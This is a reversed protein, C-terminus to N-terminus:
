RSKQVLLVLPLARDPALLLTKSIHACHSLATTVLWGQNREWGDMGVHVGVRMCGNWGGEDGKM